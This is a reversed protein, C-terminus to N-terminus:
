ARRRAAPAPAARLLELVPEGFEGPILKTAIGAHIGAGPGQEMLGTLWEAVALAQTAPTFQEGRLGRPYGFGDLREHHGLVLEALEAGGGDLHRLVHHGIVPHSVIQRWQEAQLPAGRRLFAPDLYHPNVQGASAATRSM